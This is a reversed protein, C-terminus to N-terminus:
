DVAKAADAKAAEPVFSLELRGDGKNSVTTDKGGIAGALPGGISRRLLSVAQDVKAPDTIRVRVIGGAEGLEGFTIQDNRLTTRVDEVMNTLREARLADTDVEYLLYSGGQLDLGLNLKQHPVWGPLADLTKQPLLNPLSFVIGFIVSLIVATVKWRSLTLM